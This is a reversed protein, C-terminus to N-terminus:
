TRAANTLELDGLRLLRPPASARPPLHRWLPADWTATALGLDAVLDDLTDGVDAAIAAAQAAAAHRIGTAAANATSLKHEGDRAAAHELATCATLVAAAHQLVSAAAPAPGVPVPHPDRHRDTTPPPTTM